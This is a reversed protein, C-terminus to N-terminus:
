SEPGEPVLRWSSYRALDGLRAGNSRCRNSGGSIIKQIMRFSRLYVCQRNELRTRCDLPYSSDAWERRPCPSTSQNGRVQTAERSHSFSSGQASLGVIMM